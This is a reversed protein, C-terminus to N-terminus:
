KKKRALIAKKENSDETDEKNRTRNGGRTTCKNDRGYIDKSKKADVVKKQGIKRGRKRNSVSDLCLIINVIKLLNDMMNFMMMKIKLMKKMLIMMMM